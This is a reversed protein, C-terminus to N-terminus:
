RAARRARAVPKAKPIAPAKTTKRAAPLAGIGAAATARMAAHGAPTKLVALRRGFDARLAALADHSEARRMLRAYNEPDLVVVEPRNHNTVIVEGHRVAERVIEAWRGKVDSATRVPTSAGALKRLAGLGSADAEM